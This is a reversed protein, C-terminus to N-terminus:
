LEPTWWGSRGRTQVALLFLLSTLSNSVCKLSNFPYMVWTLSFSTYWQPLPLISVVLLIFLIFFFSSRAPRTSYLAMFRIWILRSSRATLVNTLFAVRSPRFEPPRTQNGSTGRELRLRELGEREWLAAGGGAAGEVLLLLLRLLPETPKECSRRWRRALDGGDVAFLLRQSWLWRRWRSCSTTSRATEQKCWLPYYNITLANSCLATYRGTAITATVTGRRRAVEAATM